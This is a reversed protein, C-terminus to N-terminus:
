IYIVVTCMLSVGVQEWSGEGLEMGASVKPDFSSVEPARMEEEADTEIRTLSEVANPGACEVLMVGEELSEDDVDVTPVEDVEVWPRESRKRDVPPPVYVCPRLDM